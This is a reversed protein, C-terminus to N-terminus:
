VDVGVYEIYAQNRISTYWDNYLEAAKRRFIIQRARDRANAEVIDVKRRELVEILHYGTPTLVPESIDGTKLAMVAREFAPAADGPGIWGLLGGDARTSNEQSNLRAIRDFDEGQLIQQRLRRTKELTEQQTENASGQVLIHRVKHQQVTERGKEDHLKLLHLGNGSEIIESVSGVETRRLAAVFEDALQNQTRWGLLGGQAKNGDSFDAVAQEFSGGALLAQRLRVLNEKDAASQEASKDGSSIWLHSVRFAEDSVLLERHNQLYNDVEQESIVVRSNITLDILIQILRQQRLTSRFQAATIGDQKLQRLLQERTMQNRGAVFAAVDDLQTESISIGLLGAQQLQIREDIMQELLDTNIEGNFAALGGDNQITEYHHRSQYEGLTIAESNVIVLIRDISVIGAGIGPLLLMAMTLLVGFLKTNKM